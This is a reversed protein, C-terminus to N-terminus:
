EDIIIVCTRRRRRPKADGCLSSRIATFRLRRSGRDGMSRATCRDQWLIVSAPQVPVTLLPTGVYTSIVHEVTASRLPNSLESSSTAGQM